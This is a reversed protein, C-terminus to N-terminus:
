VNVPQRGFYYSQMARQIASLTTLFTDNNRWLVGDDGGHLVDYYEFTASCCILQIIGSPGPYQPHVHVEPSQLVPLHYADSGFNYDITTPNVFQASPPWDRGTLFSLRLLYEDRRGAHTGSVPVLLTRGDHKRWGVLDESEVGLLRLARPLDESLVARGAALDVTPREGHRAM